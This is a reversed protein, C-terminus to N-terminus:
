GNLISAHRIAQLSAATAANSPETTPQALELVPLWELEFVRETVVMGAVVTGPPGPAVTVVTGPFQRDPETESVCVEASPGFVTHTRDPVIRVTVKSL